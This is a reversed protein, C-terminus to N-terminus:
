MGLAKRFQQFEFRILHNTILSAYDRGLKQYGKPGFHVLDPGYLFTGKFEYNLVSCDPGLYYNRILFEYKPDQEVMKVIADNVDLSKGYDYEQEIEYFKCNPVM